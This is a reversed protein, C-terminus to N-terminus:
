ASQSRLAIVEVYFGSEFARKSQSGSDLLNNLAQKVDRLGAVTLDPLQVFAGPKLAILELMEADTLPEEKAELEAIREIKSM